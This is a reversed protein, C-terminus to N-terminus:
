RLICAHAQIISAAVSDEAHDLPAARQTRRVDRRHESRRGLGRPLLQHLQRDVPQHFSHGFLLADAPGRTVPVERGRRVIAKGIGMGLDSHAQDIRDARGEALCCQLLENAHTFLFGSPGVGARKRTGRRQPGADCTQCLNTRAFSVHGFPTGIGRAKQQQFVMAWDASSGSGTLTEAAGFEIHEAVHQARAYCHIADLM